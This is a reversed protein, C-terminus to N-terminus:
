RTQLSQDRHLGLSATAMSGALKEAARTTFSAVAERLEALATVPRGFSRSAMISKRDPIDRELDLCPVGRL